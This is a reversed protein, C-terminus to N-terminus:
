RIHKQFHSMKAVEKGALFLFFGGMLSYFLNQLVSGWLGNESHHIIEVVFQSFTTFSGCFGALLFNRQVLNFIKKEDSLTYFFGALFCGIWNIFITQYFFDEGWLYQMLLILFCRGLAGILGGIAVYFAELAM